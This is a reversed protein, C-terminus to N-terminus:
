HPVAATLRWELEGWYMAILYSLDPSIDKIKGSYLSSKPIRVLNNTDVRNMAYCNLLKIRPAM